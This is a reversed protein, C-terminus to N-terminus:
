QPAVVVELAPDLTAAAAVLDDLHREVNSRLGAPPRLQLSGSVVVVQGQSALSRLLSAAVKSRSASAVADVVSELGPETAARVPVDDPDAPGPPTSPQAPLVGAGPSASSAATDRKVGRPVDFTNTGGDDRAVDVAVTDPGSTQPRSRSAARVEVVHAAGDGHPAEVSVMAPSAPTPSAPPAPTPAVGPSVALDEVTSSARDLLAELLDADPDLRPAALAALALETWLDGAPAEVLQRVRWQELLAPGGGALTARWDRRARALLARRVAQDSV